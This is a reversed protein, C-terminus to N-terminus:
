PLVKIPAIKIDPKEPTPFQQQIYSPDVFGAGVVSAPYDPMPVTTDILMQKVLRWPEVLRYTIEIDSSGPKHAVDGTLRPGRRIAADFRDPPVDLVFLPDGSKVSGKQEAVYRVFAVIQAAAKAVQPTAESTGSDVTYLPWKEKPINKVFLANSEDYRRRDESKPLDHPWTSIVDIGFAVVDPWTRPDSELGRASAPWVKKADESAAGVCVIWQPHCWPNVMGDEGNGYNGIAMVIIFGDDVVKKTALSMPEEDNGAMPLVDAPPGLSMNLVSTKPLTKASYELGKIINCYAPYLSHPVYWLQSIDNREALAKAEQLTLSLGTSSIFPLPQPQSLSVPILNTLAAIGGTTGTVIFDYRDAKSDSLDSIAEAPRLKSKATPSPRAPACILFLLSITAVPWIM